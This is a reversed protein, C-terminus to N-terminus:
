IRFNPTFIIISSKNCSVFYSFYKFLPVHCSKLKGYQITRFVIRKIFIKSTFRKNHWVEGCSSYSQVLLTDLLIKNKTSIKVFWPMKLSKPFSKTIQDSAVLDDIDGPSSRFVSVLTITLDKFGKKWIWLWTEWTLYSYSLNFRNM